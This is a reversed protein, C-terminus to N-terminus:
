LKSRIKNKYFNKIIKKKIDKSKKKSEGFTLVKVKGKLNLKEFDSFSNSKIM